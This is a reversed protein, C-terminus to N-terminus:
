WSNNEVLLGKNSDHHTTTFQWSCIHLASRLLDITKHRPFSARWALFISRTPQPFVFMRTKLLHSAYLATNTASLPLISVGLGAAVTHRLTELSSTTTLQPRDTEDLSEFLTLVQQQLCHKDDLVFLTQNKLDQLHLTQKGTLSNKSNMLVVFPETFLPQSVINSENLAQSILIVDLEGARLKQSLDQTAGEELHLCVTNEMLSLQSTLAPLIYPALTAIAGLKLTGSFQDKSRDALTKIAETHAIVREAQAVIQEGMATLTIGSKNRELLLVGLNDELKRVATSLAPQSVHCREAARGFHLEQSLAILYNLEVLTMAFAKLYLCCKVRM